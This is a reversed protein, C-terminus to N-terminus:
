GKGPGQSFLDQNEDAFRRLAEARVEEGIQRKKTRESCTNDAAALALEETQLAQVAVPDPGPLVVVVEPRGAARNAANVGRINDSAMRQMALPELKASLYSRIEDPTGFDFGAGKMCTAWATAAQKVLPDASVLQELELKELKPLVNQLHGQPDGARANARGVCSTATPKTAADAPGTMAEDYAKGDAESLAGRIKSNPDAEAVGAEARAEAERASDDAGLTTTIGYGWARRYEPNDGGDPGAGRIDAPSVVDFEYEFGREKMCRRVEEATRTGLARSAEEDAGLVAALSVEPERASLSVTPATDSAGACAGLLAIATLSALGTAARRAPRARETAQIM